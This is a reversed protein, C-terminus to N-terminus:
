RCRRRRRPIGRAAPLVVSHSKRAACGTRVWRLVRVTRCRDKCLGTRGIFLAILKASEFFLQVKTCCFLFIPLTVSHAPSSIRYVREPYRPNSDRMKRLSPIMSGPQQTTRLVTAVYFALYDRMKRLSPMMSGLQQTTGENDPIQSPLDSQVSLCYM